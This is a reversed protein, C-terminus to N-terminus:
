ISVVEVALKLPQAVSRAASVRAFSFRNLSSMRSLSSMRNLSRLRNLLVHPKAFVQKPPSVPPSVGVPSPGSHFFDNRYENKQDQQDHDAPKHCISEAPARVQPALM